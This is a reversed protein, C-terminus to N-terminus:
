LEEKSDLTCYFNLLQILRKELEDPYDEWSINDSITFTLFEWVFDEGVRNEAEILDSNVICQVHEAWDEWASFTDPDTHLNGSSDKWFKGKTKQESVAGWQYLTDILIPVGYDSYLELEKVEIWNDSIDVFIKM